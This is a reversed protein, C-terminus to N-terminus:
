QQTFGPFVVCSLLVSKLEANKPSGRLKTPSPKLLSLLQEISGTQCRTQFGQMALKKDLDPL